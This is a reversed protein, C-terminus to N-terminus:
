KVEREGAAKALAYKWDAVICQDCLERREDETATCFHCKDEVAECLSDYLEPAAACVHAERDDDFDDCVVRGYSDIVSIGYHNPEVKWPAPSIGLEVFKKM